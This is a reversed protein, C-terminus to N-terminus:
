TDEVLRIHAATSGNSVVICDVGVPDLAHLALSLDEGGSKSMVQAQLVVSANGGTESANLTCLKHGEASELFGHNLKADLSPHRFDYLHEGTRGDRVSRRMSWSQPWTKADVPFYLTGAADVVSAKNMIRDHYQLYLELAAPTRYGECLEVVMDQTNVAGMPSKHKGADSALAPAPAM